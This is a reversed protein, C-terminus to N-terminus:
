HRRFLSGYGFFSRISCIDTKEINAFQLRKIKRNFDALFLASTGSLDAVIESNNCDLCMTLFSLQGSGLDVRYISGQRTVLLAMLGSPGIDVSLPSNDCSFNAINIIAGSALNIRQLGCPGLTGIRGVVLATQGESEIVLDESFFPMREVIAEFEGSSLNVRGLSPPTGIIGSSKFILVSQGDAEIAFPIDKEEELVTEIEGSFLNVRKLGGSSFLATQGTPEITIREVSSGLFSISSIKETELDVRSLEGSGEIVLITNGNAEVALGKLAGTLM